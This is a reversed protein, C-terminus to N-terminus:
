DPKMLQKYEIPTMGTSRKFTREFNSLSSFGADYAINTIAQNNTKILQKAYTVRLLGLWCKFCVGVKLHFYTCFYTREFGCINAANQLNIDQQFHEQCFKHLKELKPYYSFAEDNVANSSCISM